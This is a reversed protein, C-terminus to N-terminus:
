PVAERQGLELLHRQPQLRRGAAAQPARPTSPSRPTGTGPMSAIAIIDPAKQTFVSPSLFRYCPELLWELLHIIGTLLPLHANLDLYPGFIAVCQEFHVWDNEYILAQM